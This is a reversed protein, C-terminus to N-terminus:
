MQDIMYGRQDLLNIIGNDGVLHGAGVAIFYTKDDQLFGEIKDAMTFNREDFLQEFLPAMEPHEDLSQFIISEMGDVDGNEWANFMENLEEEINPDDVYDQLSAIMLDDSINSLIEIQFDSTELEIIPKNKGTARNLFYQDISYESVYGYQAMKLLELSMSVYWPKYPTFLDMDLGMTRFEEDLQKYLEEPLHNKLNDGSPYTSKQNVLQELHEQDVENINVEVVLCDSQEFTDEISKDLPYTNPDAVHVTGLVYVTTVNSSIEWLFSKDETHNGNQITPTPTPTSTPIKEQEKKGCALPTLSVLLLIILITPVMIVKTKM